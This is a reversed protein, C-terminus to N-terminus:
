LRRRLRTPDKVFLNDLEQVLTWFKGFGFDYDDRYGPFPFTLFEVHTNSEVHENLRQLRLVLFESTRLESLLELIQPELYVAYIQLVRDGREAGRNANLELVEAWSIDFTGGPFARDKSRIDIRMVAALKDSDQINEPVLELETGETDDGFLTFFPWTIQRVALRVEAHAIEQIHQYQQAKINLEKQRHLTLFISAILAAAGLSITTWGLPTLQRLGEQTSDWKTAPYIGLVVALFAVLAPIYDLLTKM